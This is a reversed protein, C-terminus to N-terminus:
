RTSHNPPGSVGSEETPRVPVSGASLRGTRQHDPPVRDPFGPPHVMAGYGAGRSWAEPTPTRYASVVAEQYATVSTTSRCASVAAEPLWDSVHEGTQHGPAQDGSSEVARQGGGAARPHVGHTPGQHRGETRRARRVVQCARHGGVPGRTRDRAVEGDGGSPAGDDDRHPVGASPSWQRCERCCRPARPPLPRPAPWSPGLLRM